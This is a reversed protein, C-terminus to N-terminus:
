EECPGGGPIPFPPWRGPTTSLYAVAWPIVRDVVPSGNTRGAGAQLFFCLPRKFVPRTSCAQGKLRAAAM